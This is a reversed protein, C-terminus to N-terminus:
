KISIDFIKINNNGDMGINSLHLDIDTNQFMKYLETCFNLCKKLTNYIQTENLEKSKELIKNFTEFNNDKISNYIKRMYDEERWINIDDCFEYVDMLQKGPSDLKDMIVYDKTLKYIHPFINPYKNYIKYYKIEDSSFGDNQNSKKVVKNKGVNYVVGHEGDGIRKKQHTKIEKLIDILKIM